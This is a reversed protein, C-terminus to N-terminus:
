SRPTDLGADPVAARPSSRCSSAATSTPASRARGPTSRTPWDIPYVYVSSGCVPPERTSSSTSRPSSPSSAPGPDAPRGTCTPHNEADIYLQEGDATVVDLGLVSECAPGHVRSNWGYGGQLLYGGICVGKCHGAPFFLDQEDLEARGPHQRGQRTRRGRARRGRRDHTQRARQRRAARRRRPPPQGAWSHGGSRSASGCITPRPTARRRRRVDDADLAQVIVDPYRQPTRPTGCRRAARRGRLRRRRPLLATRRSTTM